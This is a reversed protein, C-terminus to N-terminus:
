PLKARCSELGASEAVEATITPEDGERESGPNLTAYVPSAAQWAETGKGNSSM